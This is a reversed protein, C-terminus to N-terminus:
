PHGEIAETIQKGSHDFSGETVQGIALVVSLCALFILMLIMGYEVATPGDEAKLFRIIRTAFRVM